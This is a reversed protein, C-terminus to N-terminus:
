VHHLTDYPIHQVPVWLDIRDVIPGSLKKKYRALEVSGCSCPKIGSGRYGCPCPNMSALLICRAPYQVSGKARAITIRGEELPERLAELVRRDFEPFEDLYLVGRHALTIDGPRIHVGGGIIAVSSASHHPTRLPARGS